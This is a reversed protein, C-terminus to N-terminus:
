EAAEGDPDHADCLANLAWALGRAQDYDLDISIKPDEPDKVIIYATVTHTVELYVGEDDFVPISCIAKPVTRM